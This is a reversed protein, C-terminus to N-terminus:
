FIEMSFAFNLDGDTSYAMDKESVGSDMFTKFTRNERWKATEATANEDEDVVLRV